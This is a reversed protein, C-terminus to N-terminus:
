IECPWQDAASLKLGAAQPEGCAMRSEYSRHQCRPKKNRNHNRKEGVRASGDRQFTDKLGRQVFIWSDLFRLRTELLRASLPENKTGHPPRVAFHANGGANLGTVPSTLASYFAKGN